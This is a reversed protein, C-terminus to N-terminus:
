IRSRHSSALGSESSQTLLISCTKWVCWEWLSTRMIGHRVAVRIYM